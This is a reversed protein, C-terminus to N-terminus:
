SIRPRYHARARHALREAAAADGAGAVLARGGPALRAVLRVVLWGATQAALPAALRWAAETARQVSHPADDVQAGAADLAARALEPTPHVRTLVLLDVARERDTPSVGYAAALHLVLSAQAWALVAMEAVPAALGTVGAAVGGVGAIRTFRRVALRAIGDDTAAPYTDRVQAAWSRAKPGLNEVAALALLEPAYGPNIPVRAWWAPGDPVTLRPERATATPEPQTPEPQPPEPQTPEPRPHRAPEPGPTTAAMPQETPPRLVEAAPHGAETAQQESGAAPAPAAETTRAKPV